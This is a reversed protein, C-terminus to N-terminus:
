IGLCRLSVSFDPVFSWLELRMQMLSVLLNSALYTLQDQQPTVLFPLLSTTQGPPQAAM